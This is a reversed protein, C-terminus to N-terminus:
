KSIVNDVDYAESLALEAAVSVYFRDYFRRSTKKNNNLTM